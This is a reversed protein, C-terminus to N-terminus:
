LRRAQGSLQALGGRTKGGLMGGMEAAKKSQTIKLTLELAVKAFGAMGHDDGHGVFGAGRKTKVFALGANSFHTEYVQAIRELVVTPASCYDDSVALAFIGMEFAAFGVLYNELAPMRGQFQVCWSLGTLAMELDQWFGRELMMAMPDNAAAHIGDTATAAANAQTSAILSRLASHCRVLRCRGTVVFFLVVRVLV